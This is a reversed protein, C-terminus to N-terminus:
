YITLNYIITNIQESTSRRDLTDDYYIDVIIDAAADKTIFADGNDLFKMISGIGGYNYLSVLVPEDVYRKAFSM